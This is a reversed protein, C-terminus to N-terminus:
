GIMVNEEPFQALSKKNNKIKLAIAMTIPGVRGMFMTATIILKAPLNLFGTFNKSLGVTGIASVVEYIITMFDAKMVICMLFISLLAMTLSVGTVAKAKRITETPIKRKFVSTHKEGKIISVVSLAMLAFTVTKVGGATGVPSGGIFMLVINILSTSDRLGEQPITYFGATRDTVSQFFSTLIKEGFPLNGITRPNNYELVLVLVTGVVLLIGSTVFVAKSHLSLRTFIAKPRIEKKIVMKIVRITDWWVVFGLGGLIILAATVINIWVNDAYKMLSTGGIVDMGANCFASIATFVSIWLGRKLGFEPIFQFSYCIVGLGEVFFTGLLIKRTLKVLGSLTDLNYSEQILLRDKLTVKKGAILLMATVVTIVGLGGFQILSLIVFQGFFSWNEFTNVVTLGTVCVSTTSTFLADEIPTPEGSASSIPLALLFTGIIIALLFGLAIIQAATLGKSKCKDKHKM